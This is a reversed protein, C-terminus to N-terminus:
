CLCVTSTSQLKKKPLLFSWKWFSWFRLISFGRRVAPQLLCHVCLHSRGEWVRHKLTFWKQKLLKNIEYGCKSPINATYGQLVLYAKQMQIKRPHIVGTPCHKTAGVM